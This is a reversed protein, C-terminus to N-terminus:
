KSNVQLQRHPQTSNTTEERWADLGSPHDVLGYKKTMARVKDWLAKDQAPQLPCPNPEIQCYNLGRLYGYAIHTARAELRVPGVRHEHLMNRLDGKTKHEEFRIIKAEAALSKVKVKLFANRRNM